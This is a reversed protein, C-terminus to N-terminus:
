AYRWIVFYKFLMWVTHLSWFIYYKLLQSATQSKKHICCVQACTFNFIKTHHDLIKYILTTIKCWTRLPTVHYQSHFDTVCMQFCKWLEQNYAMTFLISLKRKSLPGRKLKRRTTQYFLWVNNMVTNGYTISVSTSTQSSEFYCAHFCNLSYSYPFM